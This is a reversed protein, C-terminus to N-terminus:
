PWRHMWYKEFAVKALHWRRGPRRLRVQPGGIAFFDGTAYAAAGEGLEVFCAGKGDFAADTPRGTLDAAIRAAVVKAEAHAFVGAKPLFKDGALPIASIDGLAYVAEDATILTAGDAPVYGSDNALASRSVVEPARQPPVGLVLDYPVEAGGQFVLRHSAADIREITQGPHFGIGREGLMAVLAEGLEVGATPMPLPEPTYIDISSEARVGRTRLLAEALFAAEYPAAPCKYPLRTVLVAVSGGSFSEFAQHAAVAGDLSYFNHAAESLGPVADPVLDTGLAIVLRDYALAGETTTVIRGPVDIELAEAQVLEVGRSRLGSYDKTVQEPRRSGSMVWLFSPAFRHVPSREVVVVRHDEGLHKRLATAAVMGGTGGGLVVVTEAAM